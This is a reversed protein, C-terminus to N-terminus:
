ARRRRLFLASAAFAALLSTSPEPIAEAFTTAAIMNSITIESLDTGSANTGAAIRIANYSDGLYSGIATADATGLSGASSTDSPNIWMDVQGSQIRAVLFASNTDYHDITTDDSGTGLIQWFDTTTNAGFFIPQTGNASFSYNDFFTIGFWAGATSAGTYAVNASFWIDTSATVDISSALARHARTNTNNAGGNTVVFEGGSMVASGQPSNSYVIDDGWDSGAAWGTGSGTWTTNITAGSQDGTGSFDDSFLVAASAQSSLVAAGALLGTLIRNKPTMITPRYTTKRDM